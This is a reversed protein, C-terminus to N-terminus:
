LKVIKILLLIIIEIIILNNTSYYEVFLRIIISIVVVLLYRLFWLFKNAWVANGRARLKLASARLWRSSRCRGSREEHAIQLHLFCFITWLIWNTSSKFSNAYSKPALFDFITSRRLKLIKFYNQGCVKVRRTPKASSNARRPPLWMELVSLRLTM